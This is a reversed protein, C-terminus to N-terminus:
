GPGFGADSGSVRATIAKTRRIWGSRDIQYWWGQSRHEGAPAPWRDRGLVCLQDAHPRAAPALAQVARRDGPLRVGERATGREHDLHWGPLDASARGVPLSARRQGDRLAASTLRRTMAISAM